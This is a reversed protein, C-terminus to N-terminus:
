KSRWAKLGYAYKQNYLGNAPTGVVPIAAGVSLNYYVRARIWVGKKNNGACSDNTTYFTPRKTVATIVTDGNTGTINKFWNVADYSTEFIVRSTDTDSLTYCSDGLQTPSVWM